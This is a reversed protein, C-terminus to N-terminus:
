PLESWSRESVPSLAGNTIAVLLHVRRSLRPRVSRRAEAVLWYTLPALRTAWTDLEIDGRHESALLVTEGVAQDTRGVSDWAAIASTIADDAPTELTAGTEVVRATAAMQRAVFAGSVALASTMALVFLMMPLAAGPKM